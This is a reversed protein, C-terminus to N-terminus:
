RTQAKAIGLYEMAGFQTKPTATPNQRLIDLRDDRVTVETMAVGLQLFTLIMRVMNAATPTYHGSHNRLLELTGGQVRMMAAADVPLGDMFSSHQTQAAGASGGKPQSYFQGASLVVAWGDGPSTSMPALPQQPAPAQQLQGANVHVEVETRRQADRYDTTVGAAPPHAALWTIFDTGHAAPDEYWTRLSTPLNM